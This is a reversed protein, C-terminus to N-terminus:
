NATFIGISGNPELGCRFAIGMTSWVFRSGTDLTQWTVPGSTTWVQNGVQAGNGVANITVTQCWSNNGAISVSTPHWANETAPVSGEILVARNCNNSLQGYSSVNVCAADSASAAKFMAGPSTTAHASVAPLLVSLVPLTLSLMHIPFRKM